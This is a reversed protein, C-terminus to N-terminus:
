EPLEPQPTRIESLITEGVLLLPVAMVAGIPGWMWTWFIISIFVLFPNIELRRGLFMPIVANEFVLHVALFGIAPILGLGFAHHTVVGAAALSLTILGAGFYPVFSAVFTLGGWIFPSALGTLSAIIATIVGVALYIMAITGFYLELSGEVANIVRLTSLRVRRNQFAMIMDRRVAVRGVVFFALSIFFVLLEGLAPTVGGLFASLWQSYDTNILPASLRAGDLHLANKISNLPELMPRMADILTVVMSPAQAIMTSLPELLADVLFFLILGTVVVLGLGALLRPAGYAALRDGIRSLVSGIIIAAIIPVLLSAMVKMVTFLALVFLGVISVSVLSPMKHDSTHLGRRRRPRRAADGRDGDRGAGSTLREAVPGDAVIGSETSRMDM